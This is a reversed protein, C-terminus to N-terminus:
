QQKKNDSTLLKRGGHGEVKVDQRTVPPALHHAAMIPYVLTEEHQQPSIGQCFRSISSPSIRAWLKRACGTGTFDRPLLMLRSIVDGRDPLLSVSAPM